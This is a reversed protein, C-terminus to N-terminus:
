CLSPTPSRQGPSSFGFHPVVLSPCVMQWSRWVAPMTAPSPFTSTVSSCMPPSVHERRRVSERPPMRWRSGVVGLCGPGRARQVTTALSTLFVAVGALALPCLAISPVLSPPAACPLAPPLFPVHALFAYVHVSARRSQASSLYSRGIESDSMWRTAVCALTADVHGTEVLLRLVLASTHSSAHLLSFNSAGVCIPCPSVRVLAATTRWLNPSSTSFRQVDICM